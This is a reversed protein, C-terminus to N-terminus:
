NKVLLLDTHIPLLNQGGCMLQLGLLEIYFKEM